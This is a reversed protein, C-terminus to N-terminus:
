WPVYRYAAAALAAIVIAIVIINISRDKKKKPAAAPVAPSVPTSIECDLEKKKDQAECALRALKVTRDKRGREDGPEPREREVRYEERKDHLQTALKKVRADREAKENRTM